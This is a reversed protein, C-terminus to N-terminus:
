NLDMETNLENRKSNVVWCLSRVKFISQFQHFFRKKSIKKKIYFTSLKKVSVSFSVITEPFVLEPPLINLLIQRSFNTQITVM